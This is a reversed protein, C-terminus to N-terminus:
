IIPNMLTSIFLNLTQLINTSAPADRPRDKLYTIYGKKFDRM